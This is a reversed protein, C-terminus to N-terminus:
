TTRAVRDKIGVVFEQWEVHLWPAGDREAISLALTDLARPAPGSLVAGQADFKANHCPCVYEKNGLGVECGAHPCIASFASFSGAVEGPATRTVYVRRTTSRVRWGDRRALTVEMTQPIGNELRALDAVPWLPLVTTGAPSAVVPIQAALGVGMAGALVGGYVAVRLFARREPTEPEPAQKSLAQRTELM